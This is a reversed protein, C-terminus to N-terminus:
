PKKIPGQNSPNLPQSFPRSWNNALHQLFGGWTNRLNRLTSPLELLSADLQHLIDRLQHLNTRFTPTEATPVITTANVCPTQHVTEDEQAPAVDDELTTLTTVPTSEPQRQLTEVEMPVDIEPGPSVQELQCSNPQIALLECLAGEDFIVNRSIVIKQSAPNWLRYAKSGESYGVFVCEKAKPDLKQRNVDPVLAFAKSGFVRLHSVDPKKGYWAQYPTINRTSSLSRNQVYIACSVSEGRLNLPIKKDHLQSRAAEM